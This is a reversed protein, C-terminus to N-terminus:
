PLPLHGQLPGNLGSSAKQSRGIAWAGAAFLAQNAANVSEAVWNTFLTQPGSSLGSMAFTALLSLGFALAGFRAGGQWARRMLLTYFGVASIVAVAMFPIKWPAMAMVAMHAGASAGLPQVRPVRAARLAAVFMLLFGGSLLVVFVQSLWAIDPGGVAVILKWVAKSMGNLFVLAAGVAFLTTPYARRYLWVAGLLFFLNPIFDFLALSLPIPGTM